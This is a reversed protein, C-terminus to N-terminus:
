FIKEEYYDRFYRSELIYLIQKEVHCEIVSIINDKRYLVLVPVIYKSEVWWTGPKFKM